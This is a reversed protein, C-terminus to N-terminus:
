TSPRPSRARLRRRPVPRDAARGAALRLHGAPGAARRPDPTLLVDIGEFYDAIQRSIRQLEQVSGLYQGGNISRGLEILAWSLPEM